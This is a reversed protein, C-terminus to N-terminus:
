VDNLNMESLIEARKGVIGDVGGHYETNNSEDEFNIFNVFSM